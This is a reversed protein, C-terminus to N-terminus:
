WPERPKRMIVYLTAAVFFVTTIGLVVALRRTSDLEIISGQLETYNQLLEWYTQNLIRFQEETARLYVNEVNTMIFGLTIKYPLELSGFEAIYTATYNLTIEGYTIGWAQEPVSFNGDYEKPSDGLPFNNDTINFMAVKDTGNLFGFITFNFYEVYVETQQKLSLVFTINHAPQTEGTANVQVKIGPFISDLCTKLDETSEQSRVVCIQAFILTLIILTLSTKAPKKM